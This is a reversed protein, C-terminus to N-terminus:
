KSETTGGLARITRKVEGICSKMDHVIRKGPIRLVTWGHRRLRRDRRGDRMKQARQSHWKKSDCELAIKGRECFIAFDLRYRVKKRSMVCHENRFPVGERRLRRRMMEELPPASLLGCIETARRLKALTTFAFTIRRRSLNRIPRVTERLPGLKFKRYRDGARPHDGEDPLLQRRTATSVKMVRAYYRVAKGQRGFAITQYLAIYDPNRAPAYELPIRYWHKRAATELDKERGIVGILVTKRGNRM